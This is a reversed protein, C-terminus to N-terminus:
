RGDYFEIGRCPYNCRVGHLELLFKEELDHVYIYTYSRRHCLGFDGPLVQFVLFVPVNVEYNNM